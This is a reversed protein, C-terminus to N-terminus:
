PTLKSAPDHFAFLFAMIDSDLFIHLGSMDPVHRGQRENEQNPTM